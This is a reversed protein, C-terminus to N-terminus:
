IESLRRVQVLVAESSDLISRTATEVAGTLENIEQLAELVQNGGASQEDVANKISMEQDRVTTTLEAVTEFRQLTDASSTEVTKISNKIGELVQSISRAQEASGKSLKRIEDAVVSFGRGAEGAHAAEISANMSLLNTQGAISQIVDSAEGLGESNSAIERITAAVENLVSRGDESSQMLQNVSETNKQLVKTVSHIQAVMEEIASSSETVAASMQHAKESLERTEIINQQLHEASEEAVQKLRASVDEKANVHHQLDSEVYQRCNEPRNLGNAIAFAMQECSKYGCSGCNLFDEPKYKHTKRFIEELEAKGPERLSIRMNDSRDKYSRNYLQPSWYKELLKEIKKIRQRKGMRSNPEGKPAYKKRMELARREIAGELVDLHTNRSDTGPGGNCGMECNLCDVLLPLSALKNKLAEPMHALYHYIGPQGEIKRTMDSANPLYREVTRMLGGPSSFLVAREAPPNDYDSEAYRSLDIKNNEIHISLAKMTVNYDGIGIDNFERRKS